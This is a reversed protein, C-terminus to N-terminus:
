QTFLALPNKAVRPNRKIIEAMIEKNEPAESAAKVQKFYEQFKAHNKEFNALAKDLQPNFQDEVEAISLPKKIETPM